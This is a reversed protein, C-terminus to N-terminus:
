SSHAVPCARKRGATRLGQAVLGRTELEAADDPSLTRFFDDVDEHPELDLSPADVYEDNGEEEADFKAVPATESHPQPCSLPFDLELDRHPSVLYTRLQPTTWILKYGPRASLVKAVKRMDETTKVEKVVEVLFQRVGLEAVAYSGPTPHVVDYAPTAAPSDVEGLINEIVILWQQGGIFPALYQGVSPSPPPDNFVIVPNSSGTASQNPNLQLIFRIFCIKNCITIVAHGRECPRLVPEVVDPFPMSNSKHGGDSDASSIDLVRSFPTPQRDSFIPKIGKPSSQTAALLKRRALDVLRFSESM